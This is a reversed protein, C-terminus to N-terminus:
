KWSLGSAHVRLIKSNHTTLKYEINTNAQASVDFDAVLIRKIADYDGEDSLTGQHWNSGSDVTMWAKFDTNLTIDSIDEELIIIRGDDPASEAVFTDSILTMDSAEKTYQSTPVTITDTLGVNPSASFYNSKRVRFEDMHGNMPNSGLGPLRDGIYFNQNFPTANTANSKYTVQNGDLYLAYNKTSGTGQIVCLVHHWTNASVLGTTSSDAFITSGGLTLNWNITNTGTARNYHCTFYNNWSNDGLGFMYSHSEEATRFWWDINWTDTNNAVWDWDSSDPVTLYDGTGDLLLSATGFKKQATDLQANGNFIVTHASQSEDTVSTAGDTGDFSLILKISSDFSSVVPSYYDGTSDYDENSSNATDIGSEDEYEDVIGDVMNFQSLSGNVAIRFANLMINDQNKEVRDDVYKKTTVEQDNTPDVVGVIKHTNMDLNESQAGLATDANSTHKKAVADDIQAETNGGISHGNMDLDGGLQPTIDEIINSLGGGAGSTDEAWTSGDYKYYKDEDDVYVKMGELPTIFMWASSSYQAIDKITGVSWDGGTGAIIYRDGNSPSGPSTVLDKDLVSSQWPDKSEPEIYMKQIAM